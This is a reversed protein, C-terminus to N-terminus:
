DNVKQAIYCIILLKIGCDFLRQHQKPTIFCTLIHNWKLNYKVQEFSRKNACRQMCHKFKGTDM